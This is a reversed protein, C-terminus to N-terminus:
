SLGGLRAPIRRSGIRTAIERAQRAHEAAAEPERASLTVALDAHLEARHRISTPEAALAGSLPEPAAPDGLLALAHGRQRHLDLLEVDVTPPWFLDPGDGAARTAQEARGFAVQAATTEGGAARALGVAAAWRATSGPPGQPPADGLLVLASAPEGVDVLVAAQGALATAAAVWQHAATAASHARGYAEWALDPRGADLEQAGALAAAGALVAGVTGRTGADLTHALTHDLQAVQARVLGGAGATGLEDDLRRAVALQERWLAAVEEDVAAAGALAARLRQVGETPGPGDIEPELGLEAATRGFLEALLERYQPEPLVHGNEWRSLLTKLSAAAAVPVGRRGGLGAIERAADSQSWGRAVRAARLATRGTTPGHLNM